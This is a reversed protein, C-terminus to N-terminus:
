PVLAIQIQKLLGEERQRLDLLETRALDRLDDDPSDQLLEETGKIQARTSQLARYAQVVDTMSSYERGYRELLAPDSLTEPDAMLRNIEEYRSEITALKSDIDIMNSNERQNDGRAQCHGTGAPPIPPLYVYRRGM